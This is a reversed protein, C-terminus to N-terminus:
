GHISLSEEIECKKKHFQELDDFTDIDLATSASRYLTSKLDWRQAEELYRQLSGPVFVYPLALPPRTLLANTGTEDGSSALVVNYRKSLEIMNCIDRAQLLPLDASITLLATAGEALKKAAANLPPNHGHEVEILVDVGWREAQELVHLDPSVVSISELSDSARLTEIVHRLMHLVLTARQDATLYPALRSKAESLMKVPILARYTM